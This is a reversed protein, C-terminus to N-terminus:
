LVESLSVEIMYKKDPLTINDISLLRSSLEDKSYEGIFNLNLGDIKKTMITSFNKNLEINEEKLKQIQEKLENLEDPDIDNSTLKAKTNEIVENSINKSIHKNYRTKCNSIISNSIGYFGAIEFIKYGQSILESFYKGKEIMNKMDLSNKDIFVKKYKSKDVKKESGSYVGYERYISYLKGVSIGLQKSLKTSTFQKKILALIYKIENESKSLIENLNCNELTMYKEYMNRTRVEGNLKDREKKTLFDSQTRIGGRIFGKRSARKYVGIGFRKKERSDQLLIREIDNDKDYM